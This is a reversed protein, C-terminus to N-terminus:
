NKIEFPPKLQEPHHVYLFQNQKINTYICLISEELAEWQQRQKELIKNLKEIYNELKKQTELTRDEQKQLSKEIKKVSGEHIRKIEYTFDKIIKKSGKCVSVKSPAQKTITKTTM